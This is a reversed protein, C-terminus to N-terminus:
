MVCVFKIVRNDRKVLMIRKRLARLAVSDVTLVKYTNCKREKNRQRKVIMMVM